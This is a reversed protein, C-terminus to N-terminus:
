VPNEFTVASIDKSADHVLSIEQFAKWNVIFAVKAPEM